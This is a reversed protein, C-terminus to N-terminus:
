SNGNIASRLDSLIKEKVTDSWEWTVGADDLKYTTTMRAIDVSDYFVHEITKNLETNEKEFKALVLKGKDQEDVFRGLYAFMMRQIIDEKHASIDAHINSVLEHMKDFMYSEAIEAIYKCKNM